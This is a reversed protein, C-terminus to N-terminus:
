ICSLCRLRWLDTILFNKSMLSFLCNRLVIIFDALKFAAAIFSFKASIILSISSSIILFLKSIGAKEVKSLIARAELVLTLEASYLLTLLWSVSSVFFKKSWNSSASVVLLTNLLPQSYRFCSIFFGDIVLM